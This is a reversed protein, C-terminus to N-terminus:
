ELRLNSRLTFVNYIHQYNFNGIRCISHWIIVFISNIEICIFDLKLYDQRRRHDFCISFSFVHCIETLHGTFCYLLTIQLKVQYQTGAVLIKVSLFKTLPSNTEDYDKYLVYFYMSFISSFLSIPWFWLLSSKM